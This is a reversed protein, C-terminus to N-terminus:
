PRIRINAAGYHVVRGVKSTKPLFNALMSCFAHVALAGVLWTNPITASYGEGVEVSAASAPAAFLCALIFLSLIIFSLVRYNNRLVSM